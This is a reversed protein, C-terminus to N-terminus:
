LFENIFQNEIFDGVAKRSSFEKYRPFGPSNDSTYSLHYIRWLGEVSGNCVLFLVDDNSDCKAVAYVKDQFVDNEEGLERKLEDIFAGQSETLPIMRWNFEDGYKEFLNYFIEEITMDFYCEM